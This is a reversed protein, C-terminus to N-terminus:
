ATRRSLITMMAKGAAEWRSPLQGMSKSSDLAQVPGTSRLIHSMCHSGYECDSQDYKYDQLRQCDELHTCGALPGILRVVSPM